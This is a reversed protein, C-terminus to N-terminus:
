SYWGHVRRRRWDETAAGKLDDVNLMDAGEEMLVNWVYNRLSIPWAPTDWYRVKLGRAHAGRIQGRIINMQKSSLQGRWVIGVTSAFSVSAYYSNTTDFSNATTDSTGTQGQQSKTMESSRITDLVNADLKEADGPPQWLKPLPADLFIDRYTKNRVVLDFPTNGTGVVTVARSVVREGDYHTLYGRERLPELQQQVCPFTDQGDTKFDVLLVLTQESDEDFVGHGTANTFDTEPNMHDLLEVLPSVYLSQFTRNKTLSATSHGVYLEEDILWVDAEVGTCGWHIAEFLPIRRWYDNHSHCRIPLVDRTVDTPYKALGEGTHGPKGWDPLFEDPDIDWFLRARGILVQLIHLVGFLMLVMVPLALLVRKAFAKNGSHGCRRVKRPPDKQGHTALLGEIDEDQPALNYRGKRKRPSMRALQLLRSFLPSGQLTRPYQSRGDDVGLDDRSPGPLLKETRHDLMVGEEGASESSPRAM